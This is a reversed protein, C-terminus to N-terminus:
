RQVPQGRHRGRPAWGTGPGRPRRLRTPRHLEGPAHESSTEVLDPEAVVAAADDDTPPVAATPLPDEISIAADTETSSVEVRDDEPEDDSLRRADDSLEDDSLGDDSPETSLEGYGDEPSVSPWGELVNETARELDDVAERESARGEPEDTGSM